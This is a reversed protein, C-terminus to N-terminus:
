LEYLSSGLRLYGREAAVADLHLTAWDAFYSAVKAEGAWTKVYGKCGNCVELRLNPEDELELISLKDEDETGCHPCGLRKVKWQAKCLGCVLSRQRGADKETLVSLSPSNGCAPCYGHPWAANEKWADFAAITPSLAYALATWAIYRATGLHPVDSAEKAETAISVLTRESQEPTKHLYECLERAKSALADPIPAKSLALAFRDFTGASRHLLERGVAASELLAIGASFDAAYPEFNTEVFKQEPLAKIVEEVTAELRAIPELFPHGGLWANLNMAM